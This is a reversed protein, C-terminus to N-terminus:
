LYKEFCIVIAAGEGGSGEECCVHPTRDVQFFGM